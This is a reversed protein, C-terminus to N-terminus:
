LNILCTSSPERTGNGASDIRAHHRELLKKFVPADDLNCQKLTQSIEALIEEHTDMGRMEIFTQPDVRITMVQGGGKNTAGPSSVKPRPSTKVSSSQRALVNKSVGESEGDSDVLPVNGVSSDSSADSDDDDDKRSAQCM